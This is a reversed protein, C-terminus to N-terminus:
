RFLMFSGSHTQEKGDLFTIDFFFTYAESPESKGQYRGDWGQTIDKTKFVQMGWRDYISMAYDRVNTALIRFTDNKGDGNPSFADPIALLDNLRVTFSDSSTNTCGNSDTYIYSIIFTSDARPGTISDGLVYPGSYYGGPPTGGGLAVSGSGPLVTEAPSWTVTPPPHVDLTFIAASDCGDINNLHITQTGAGTFTLGNWTYPLSSTCISRVSQSSDPACASVFVWAAGVQANDEPGGEIVTTGDSSLAVFTAQEAGFRGNIANTGILKSGRQTWVGGSRTYVWMAGAGNNDGYGGIVATNGDASLSVANGQAAGNSGYIAGTGILKPGQQSWAGATRSYVWAAGVNNSDAGGGVIATNGDASISVSAGQVSQVIVDTGTLKAGQQSWTSGSRTFVWAAGINYNDNPGGV